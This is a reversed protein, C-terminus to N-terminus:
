GRYRREPFIRRLVPEPVVRKLTTRVGPPLRHALTRLAAGARASGRSHDLAPHFNLDDPRIRAGCLSSLRLAIEELRREFDEFDIEEFPRGWTQLASRAAHVHRTTREIVDSRAAEGPRRWGIRCFSLYVDEPDRTVLVARVDDGLIRTWYPLTYCLRPDKWLWPRAGDYDAVLARHHDMPEVSRIRAAVKPDIPEFMWTNHAAFGAARLVDVNAEILRDAEFYGFPNHDDGERIHTESREGVFYGLRAFCAATLSTGSRAMGIVLVSAASADVRSM